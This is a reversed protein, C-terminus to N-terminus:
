YLVPDDGFDVQRCTIDYELLLTRAHKSQQSQLIKRYEEM